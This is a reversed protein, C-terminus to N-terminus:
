KSLWEVVQWTWFVVVASLAIFAILEHKNPKNKM